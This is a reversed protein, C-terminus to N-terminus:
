SISFRMNSVGGRAISEKQKSSSAVITGTYHRYAFDGKIVYEIDNLLDARHQDEWSYGRQYDPIRFVRSGNAFIENLSKLEHEFLSSNGM